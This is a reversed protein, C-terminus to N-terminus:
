LRPRTASSPGDDDLRRRGEGTPALAVVETCPEDDLPALDTRAFRHLTYGHVRLIDLSRATEGFLLESRANHEIQLYDIRHEHLASEAGALVADEFGEVDIKVAAVRGAGIVDDLTAVPVRVLRRTSRGTFLGEGGRAVDDADTVVHGMTGVGEVFEIEGPEAGVAEQRVDIRGGLDNLAVNRRLAAAAATGPEFAIVEAGCEAAILSYVGINAGVDLFRDGPRLLRRLVTLEAHDPLRGMLVKHSALRPDVSCLLSDGLATTVPRDTLRVYVDAAVVGAIARLRRDRNEPHGVTARVVDVGVRVAESIKAPLSVAGLTRLRTPPGLVPGGTSLEM